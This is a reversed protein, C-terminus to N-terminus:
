ALKMAKLNKLVHLLNLDEHQFTLFNNTNSCGAPYVMTSIFVSCIRESVAVETKQFFVAYHLRSVANRYTCRSVGLAM